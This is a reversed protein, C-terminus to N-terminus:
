AKYLFHAIGITRAVVQSCSHPFIMPEVVNGFDDRKETLRIEKLLKAEIAAVARKLQEDTPKKRAEVRATILSYIDNSIPTPLTSAPRADVIAKKLGVYKNFQDRMSFNCLSTGVYMEDQERWVVVVGKKQNNRKKVYSIVVKRSTLFDDVFKRCEEHYRERQTDM